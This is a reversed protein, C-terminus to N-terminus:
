RMLNIARFLQAYRKEWTHESLGRLYGAARVREAEEPHALYYHIKTVLEDISKWAVVEKETDYYLQLEECWQPFYLARAMPVEFDRLRIHSKVKGGPIGGDYVHCFNLVVHSRALLRPMEEEEPMPEAVGSLRGLAARMAVMRIARRGLYIPGHERLDRLAEEILSRSARRSASNGHAFAGTYIRVPIRRRILRALWRPRDAYLSGSFLVPIERRVGDIPRHFEPDAAMQIHLPHAGVNRYYPLAEQEPVWCFDYAPAIERVLHFQHAGNCYFNVTPISLKRIDHVVEAEVHPNYFYSLFLDFPKRWHEKLIEDILRQSMQAREERTWSGDEFHKLPLDWDLKSAVVEHGMRILPEYLNKAWHGSKGNRGFFDISAFFIRM